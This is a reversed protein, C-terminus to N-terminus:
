TILLNSNISFNFYVCVHWGGFVWSPVGGREVGDDAWDLASMDQKVSNWVEGTAAKERSFKSTETVIEERGIVMKPFFFMEIGQSNQHTLIAGRSM